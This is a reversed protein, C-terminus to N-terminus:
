RCRLAQAPGAEPRLPPARRGPLAHSGLGAQWLGREEVRGPGVWGAGRGWGGRGRGWGRAWAGGGRGRGMQGRGDGGRRGLCKGCLPLRLGAHHGLGAVAQHHPDHLGERLVPPSPGYHPRRQLCNWVGQRSMGAPCGCHGRCLTGSSPAPRGKRAKTARRTM